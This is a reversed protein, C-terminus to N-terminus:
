LIEDVPDLSIPEFAASHRQRVVPVLVDVEFAGLNIRPDFRATHRWTAAERVVQLVSLAAVAHAVLRSYALVDHDVLDVLVATELFSLFPELVVYQGDGYDDDAKGDQLNKADARSLAQAVVNLCLLGSPEAIM